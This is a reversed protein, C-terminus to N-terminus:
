AVQIRAYKSGDSSWADGQIGAAHSTKEPQSLLFCDLTLQNHALPPTTNSLMNSLNKNM